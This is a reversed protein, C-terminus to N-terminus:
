GATGETKKGCKGTGKKSQFYYKGIRKKRREQELNKPSNKELEEKQKLLSKEEEILLSYQKKSKELQALQHVAHHVMELEKKVKERESKLSASKEKFFSHQKENEKLLELKQNETLERACIPCNEKTKQLKEISEKHSLAKGLHHSIHEELENLRKEIEKKSQEINPYKKNLSTINDLDIKLSDKQPQIQLLRKQFNQLMQKHMERENDASEIIANAHAWKERTQILENRRSSVKEELKNIDNLVSAKQELAKNRKTQLPEMESQIKELESHHEEEQQQHSAIEQNITEIVEKLEKERNQINEIRKGTNEIRDEYLAIDSQLKQVNKGFSEFAENKAHIFQQDVENFKESAKTLKEKSENQKEQTEEKKEILEVEKDLLVGLKENLQASDVRLITAKTQQLEKEMQTYKQAVAKEKALQEIVNMRENLVISIDKIKNEVKGLNKMAEKKKEEFEQLGAVEDIVQRREIENMDIIRLLDGQVVLNHGNVRVGLEKLLNQIEGLTVRKENLRYVSKGHKDVTRSLEYEGKEDEFTLNVVAYSGPINLYILDTLRSARISKLSTEGMAFLVADMVNSKGSGNAGAIATFGNGFPITANKFSKFNKM